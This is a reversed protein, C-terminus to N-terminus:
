VTSYGGDVPIVTGTVFAAAPSCLYNVTGAIDAPKGWRGMPTRAEIQARRDPDSHLPQTFGTEIYGPAVGNVRIGHAAWAAGLSRTLLVLGGKSAAYAPVTASGFFSLMSCVNVIAGDGTRELLPRAATSVRMAGTLNVDVVKAFVDAEFERDARRTIGACNVLVDLRELGALFADVSNGDTVDLPRAELGELDGADVDPAGVRVHYGNAHLSEAIARGIEGTGGTVAAIRTM